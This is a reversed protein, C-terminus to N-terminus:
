SASREAEPLAAAPAKALGPGKATDAVSRKLAEMLDVITAQPAATSTIIAQGAAKQEAAARVREAYGNSYQEARFDPQSLQAILQDALAHEQDSVVVRGPSWVDRFDRVENAYRQVDMRLGGLYPHLTVLHEKGRTSWQAVACVGAREMAQSLLTYSRDGGKDPGLYYSKEVSVVDLAKSPVFEQVDVTKTTTTDLAALEDKTFAVCQGPAVDYGLVLKDRAVEQGTGADVLLQKTRAGTEPNLFHMHVSEDSCATYVKVPIAVLGFTITASAIARAM